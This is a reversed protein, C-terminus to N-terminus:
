APVRAWEAGDEGSVFVVDGSGLLVAIVAPCRPGIAAHEIGDSETRLVRQGSDDISLLAERNESIAILKPPSGWIVGVPDVEPPVMVPPLRLPRLPILSHDGEALIVPRASAHTDCGLRLTYGSPRALPTETRLAFDELGPTGLWKAGTVGSRYLTKATPGSDTETVFVYSGEFRVVRSSKPAVLTMRQTALNAIWLTDLADRLLAAWRNAGRKDHRDSPLVLCERIRGDAAFGAHAIIQPRSKSILHLREADAAIAVLRKKHLGAAVLTTGDPALRTGVCRAAARTTKPVAWATLKQGKQIILRGGGEAFLLQPAYTPGSASIRIAGRLFMRCTPTPPLDLSLTLSRLGVTVSTETEGITMPTASLAAAVDPVAPGGIIWTDDGNRTEEAWEGAEPQQVSRGILLEPIMEFSWGEHLSREPKQLVGWAFEARAAAARHALVVLLALHLLRPAGLQDPGTDLLVVTRRSGAPQRRAPRSFLHEKMAARRLFEEPLEDALLWESTILRDYTGRRSLGDYGDPEGQQDPVPRNRLPGIAAVLRPLWPAITALIEPRFQQLEDQWPELLPPLRSM